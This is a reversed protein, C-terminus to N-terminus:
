SRPAKRVTPKKLMKDTRSEPLGREGRPPEEDSVRPEGKEGDFSASAHREEITGDGDEGKGPDRVQLERATLLSPVNEPKELADEDDDRPQGAIPHTANREANQRPQPRGDMRNRQM